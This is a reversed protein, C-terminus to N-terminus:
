IRYLGSRHFSLLITSTFLIALSIYPYSKITNIWQYESHNEPACLVLAIFVFCVAAAIMVSSVVTMIDNRRNREEIRKLVAYKSRLEDEDPRRLKAPTPLLDMQRKFEEMFKESGDSVSPRNEMFFQKIDNDTTM